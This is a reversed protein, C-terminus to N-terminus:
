RCLEAILKKVEKLLAGLPSERPWDEDPESCEDENVTSSETYSFVDRNVKTVQYVVEDQTMSYGVKVGGLEKFGNEISTQIEDACGKLNWTLKRVCKRTKSFYVRSRNPARSQVVKPMRLVAYGSLVSKECPLQVDPSPAIQLPLVRDLPTWAGSSLSVQKFLQISAAYASGSRTAGDSGICATESPGLTLAGGILADSPAGFGDPLTLSNLARKVAEQAPECQIRALPNTEILVNCLSRKSQSDLVWDPGAASGAPVFEASTFETTSCAAGAAAFGFTVIVYLRKRKVYAINQM